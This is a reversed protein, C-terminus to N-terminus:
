TRVLQCRSADLRKAVIIPLFNPPETGTKPLPASDEDLVIHVPDLGVEMGLAMVIWGATRGCYNHASFQPIPARGGGGKQSPSSPGWRVWLGRPQPTGGHWTGAFHRHVNREVEM